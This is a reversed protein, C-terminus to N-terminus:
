QGAQPVAVFDYPALPGLLRLEVRGRWRKEVAEVGREFKRRRANDVLVAVHVADQEHTPPREIATVTLPELAAILNGTDTTRTAEVAQNVIEGLRVRADMTSQEPLDDPADRLSDRLRAAEPVDELIQELLAREVYRGRIIFETRDDLENLAALFADHGDDLLREVSERDALVTGFRLPLVPAEIVTGDLIRQYAVLDDPEGLPGDLPVESVLAGIESRTVTTVALPPDGLGRAEETPTVDGPVVGYVFYATSQESGQAESEQEAERTRTSM